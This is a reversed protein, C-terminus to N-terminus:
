RRHSQCPANHILELFSKIIEWLWTSIYTHSVSIIIILSLHTAWFWKFIQGPGRRRAPPERPSLTGTGPWIHLPTCVSLHRILQLYQNGSPLTSIRHDFNLIDFRGPEAGRPKNRPKEAAARPNRRGDQGWIECIPGFNVESYSARCEDETEWVKSVQYSHDLSSGVCAWPGGVQKSDRWSQNFFKVSSKEM